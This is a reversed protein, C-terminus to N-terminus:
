LYISRLIDYSKDIAQIYSYLCNSDEEDMYTFKMNFKFFPDLKVSKLISGKVFITNDKDLFINAECETDSKIERDLLFAIGGLSINSITCFYTNESDISLTAPLYVDRRPFIRSNKAEAIDQIDVRIFPSGCLEIKSITGQIIYEYYENKFKLEIDSGIFIFSKLLDQTMPIDIYENRCGSVINLSWALGNEVKVSVLSGPYLLKSMCIKNLVIM